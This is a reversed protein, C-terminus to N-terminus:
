VGCCAGMGVKDPHVALVLQRRKTKLSEATVEDRSSYGMVQHPLLLLLLLRDSM